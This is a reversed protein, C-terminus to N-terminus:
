GIIMFEDNENTAYGFYIKKCQRSLQIIIVSDTQCFKKGYYSNIEATINDLVHKSNKIQFVSYQLRFGFKKLFKAFSNRLKDNTIDYSVIM